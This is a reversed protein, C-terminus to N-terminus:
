VMRVEVRGIRGTAGTRELALNHADHYHKVLSSWDFMEGFRETKNRLDIRQRRTMQCFGFLYNALHDAADDFSRYRRDLVLVGHDM